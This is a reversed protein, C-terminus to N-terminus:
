SFLRGVGDGVIRAAKDAMFAAIPGDSVEVLVYRIARVRRRLEVDTVPVAASREALSVQELLLSPDSLGLLDQAERLARCLSLVEEAIGGRSGDGM